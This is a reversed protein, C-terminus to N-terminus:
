KTNITRQLQPEIKLSKLPEIPITQTVKFAGICLDLDNM